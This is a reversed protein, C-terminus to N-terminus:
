QVVVTVASRLRPRLNVKAEGSVGRGSARVVVPGPEVRTFTRRGYEDTYPDLRLVGDVLDLAPMDSPTEVGVRAVPFGKGDADVVAVELMAPEPEVLEIEVTEDARVDVAITIPVLQPDALSILQRGADIDRLIAVGHLDCDRQSAREWWVRAGVAPSGDRRRARM